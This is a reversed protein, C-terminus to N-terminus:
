SWFPGSPVYAREAPPKPKPRSAADIRKALETKADQKRQNVSPNERNRNAESFPDSM